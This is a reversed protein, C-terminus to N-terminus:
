CKKHTNLLVRLGASSIYELGKMDMIIGSAGGFLLGIIIQKALYPMKKAFPRRDALYVILVLVCNLLIPISLKM